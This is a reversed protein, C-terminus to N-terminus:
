IELVCVVDKLKKIKGWMIKAGFEAVAEVTNLNMDTWVM